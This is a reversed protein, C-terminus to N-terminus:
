VSVEIFHKLRGSIYSALAIKIVEGPVFIIIGGWLTQRFTLSKGVIFNMNIYLYCAGMITIIFFGIINAIVLNKLGFVVNERELFKGVAWAALPFSVLYGFTPKLIYGLGGGMSFIPVGALGIILFVVQCFGGKRSGLLSGSLYVFLTQLTFPVPPLPIRFFGGIVTLAVFM